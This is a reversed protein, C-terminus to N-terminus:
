TLFILAALLEAMFCCSVFLVNGEHKCSAKPTAVASSVHWHYGQM